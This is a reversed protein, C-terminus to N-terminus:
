KRYMAPAIDAPMFLLRINLYGDILKSELLLSVAEVNVLSNRNLRWKGNNICFSYDSQKAKLFVRNEQFKLDNM